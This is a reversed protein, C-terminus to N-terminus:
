FQGTKLLVLTCAEETSIGHAELTTKLAPNEAGPNFIVRSPALRLIEDQLSTSVPEAVYVTLTDIKDTIDSLKHAVILDEITDFKPSVPIVRHGYETLLRVAKNSYREPKQSAGLVAVNQKTNKM